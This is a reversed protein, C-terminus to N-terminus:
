PSVGLQEGIVAQIVNHRMYILAARLSDRVGPSPPRGEVGMRACASSVPRRVQGHAAGHYVGHRHGTILDHIDDECVM